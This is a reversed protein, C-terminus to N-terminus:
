CVSEDTGDTCLWIISYTHNQTCIIRVKPMRVVLHGTTQSRQAVCSDPKVEEPLVIQFVKGKIVFTAYTPQVDAEILSTDM